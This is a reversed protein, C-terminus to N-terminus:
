AGEWTASLQDLGAAMSALVRVVDPSTAALADGARHDAAESLAASLTGNEATTTPTGGLQAIHQELVEAIDEAGATGRAIALVRQQDSLVARVLSIDADVPRPRPKVGVGRVVDDLRGTAGLAVVAGAAIGGALLM